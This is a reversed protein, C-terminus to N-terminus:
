KDGRINKGKSKNVENKINDRANMQKAPRDSFINRDQGSTNRTKSVSQSTSNHHVVRNSGNFPNKRAERFAESNRRNPKFGENYISGKNQGQSPNDYKKASDSVNTEQNANTVTQQSVDTKDHHQKEKNPTNVSAKSTNTAETRAKDSVNNGEKSEGNTSSAANNKVTDANNEKNHIGKDKGVNRTKWENYKQSIAGSKGTVAGTASAAKRGM